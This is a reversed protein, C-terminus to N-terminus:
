IQAQAYRDAFKLQLRYLSRSFNTCVVRTTQVSRASTKVKPFAHLIKLYNYALAFVDSNLIAFVEAKLTGYARYEQMAWPPSLALPVFLVRPVCLCCIIHAGILLPVVTRANTKSLTTGGRFPNMFINVIIVWPKMDFKARM